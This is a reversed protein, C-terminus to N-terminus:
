KIDFKSRMSTVQKQYDPGKYKGEKKDKEIKEAVKAAEEADNKTKQEKFAHFDFCSIQELTSELEDLKEFGYRRAGLIHWVQSLGYKEHLEKLLPFKLQHPEIKQKDAWITALEEAAAVDSLLKEVMDFGYKRCLCPVIQSGSFRAKIKGVQNFSRVLTRLRDAQKELVAISPEKKLLDSMAFTGRRFTECYFEMAAKHIQEAEDEAPKSDTRYRQTIQVQVAKPWNGNFVVARGVNLNSLFNAQEEELGMTHGVAEKDDQAFLRHIIKTNTNKMVEPTLKGPIQDAIVLSEGYKRIEALMDAFTEASQKQSQSGGPEPKSLLRHAEEILTIHHVKDKTVMFKRKVAQLLNTLVFGIILAKQAANPISELELVVKRDLLKIFDVSRPCDLMFGKAGLTLGQLRANISGIYDKKLRDDFGQEEVVAEVKHLVDSLTPFAFVGDAFPSDDEPTFGDKKFGGPYNFNENTDVSWGYDEYCAYIAREILQPIAAEMDFAATISAMLMDVRATVSEGPILEFPNLRFPAVTDDGLTFVLLDKCLDKRLGRYETKAPEIVLFNWKEKENDACSMLLTQCTTTKGSGTVGAVFVHRDLQSQALNVSVPLPIKVKTDKDYDWAICENGSKVMTGLHVADGDPAPVNLGFEVEEKLRLGTVEKQPLGAMLALERVSMWNGAYLVPTQDDTNGLKAMGAYELIAAQVYPLQSIQRNDAPNLAAFPISFNTLCLCEEPSPKRPILPVMNAMEGAFISRAAQTLKRVVQPNEGFLSVNVVFAGKGRAYDLRPILVDDFYKVWDAAIKNTLDTSVTTSTGHQIGANKSENKNESKNINTSDSVSSGGGVTHSSNSGSNRSGGSEGHIKHNSGSSTGTTRSDNRNTSDTHSTGKSISKGVSVSYGTNTGDNVGLQISQKSAASLMEYAQFVDKRLASLREQAVPKALIMFGFTDGQMIDVLRDVGRFDQKDKDKVGGPAGSLVRCKNEHSCVVKGNKDKTDELFGKLENWVSQLEKAGLDRVVSGRFNGELAPRLVADAIQSVTDSERQVAVADRAFGFYFRVNGSRKDGLILYILTMGPMTMCSLANELAELQPADEEYTIEEIRYLAIDKRTLDEPCEAFERVANGRERVIAAWNEIEGAQPLSGMVEPEIIRSEKVLANSM